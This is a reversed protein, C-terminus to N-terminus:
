RNKGEPGAAELERDIVTKYDKFPQDGAIRSPDGRIAL